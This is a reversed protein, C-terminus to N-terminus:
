MMEFFEDLAAKAQVFYRTKTIPTKKGVRQLAYVNRGSAVLEEVAAKSVTRGLDEYLTIHPTSM